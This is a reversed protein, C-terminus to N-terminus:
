KDSPPQIALAILPSINNKAIYVVKATVRTFNRIASLLEVVVVDSFNYMQIAKLLNNGLDSHM